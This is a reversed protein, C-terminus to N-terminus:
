ELETQKPSNGLVVFENNEGRSMNTMVKFVLTKKYM